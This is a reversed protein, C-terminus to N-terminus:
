IQLKFRLSTIIQSTRFQMGKVYQIDNCYQMPM